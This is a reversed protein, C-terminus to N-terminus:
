AAVASREAVYAAVEAESAFGTLRVPVDAVVGDVSVWWTKQRDRVVPVDLGLAVRWAEFVDLGDHVSIELRNPYIPSLRFDAGPLTPMDRHLQALLLVPSGQDQLTLNHKM